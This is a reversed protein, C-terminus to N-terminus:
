CFKSIFDDETIIDVGNMKARENKSSKSEIDNNILYSTNKSVASGVKGGNDEIYKQLEKRTYHALSGTICFVMGKLKDGSEEVEEFRMLDVLKKYYPHTNFTYRFFTHISFSLEKGFSDLNEFRYNNNAAKEFNEWTRFEKALIKAKSLAIKPIGLSAIFNALKVDRSNEIAEMLNNFSNEGFGDFEIITSKHNHLEYIEYINRLIGAEVCKWLTKESLGNIDMCDKSAFYVLSNVNKAACEPNMCYPTITGNKNEITTTVGCVPCTLIEEFEEDGGVSQTIQPIIENKKVITVTANKRVGLKRMISINHLSAKSVTTGDLIVPDFIAVPTIKGTRGVQWEINRITSTEEEEKFKLAIGDRYHHSTKGLSEGYITDNYKVVLGDIPIKKDAAVDVMKEVLASFQESTYDTPTFKIYDCIEIGNEKVADLRESLFQKEEMGEIVNFCFFHVNRTACIGSDLNQVSGSALNRPTKYKEDDPLKSNIENFDNEKIIAEGTLVVKNTFPISVPLNVITRANDTIIRGEEGNGRTSAEVLNGGEYTLCVTLGDLKHMLLAERSGTFNQAENFDKTKALSLLATKHRVKLLTENVTYGVNQTPSNSMVIGTEEEMKALKDFLEDYEADSISPRSEEYYEKRCQNLYQVLEKIEQATAM